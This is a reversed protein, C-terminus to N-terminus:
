TSPFFVPDLISNGLHNWVNLVNLANLGNLGGGRDEGAVRPLILSPAPVIQADPVILETPVACRKRRLWLRSSLRKIGRAAASTAMCLTNLNKKPPTPTKAWCRKRGWFWGRLAFVASSDAMSSSLMRCLTYSGM